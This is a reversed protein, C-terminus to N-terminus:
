FIYSYANHKHSDLEFGGMPHCEELHEWSDYGKSIAYADYKGKGKEEQLVLHDILANFKHMAQAPTDEVSIKLAELKEKDSM